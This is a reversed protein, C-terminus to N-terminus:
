LGIPQDIYIEEDLEGNLIAIRVDMQSLKSNVTRCDSSLAFPTLDGGKPSSTEM